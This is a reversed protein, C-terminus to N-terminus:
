VNLSPGFIVIANVPLAQIIGNLDSLLMKVFNEIALRLSVPCILEVGLCDCTRHKSKLSVAIM